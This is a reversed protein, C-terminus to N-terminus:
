STSGNAPAVAHSSPIPEGDSYEVYVMSWGALSRARAMCPLQGAPKWSTSDLSTTSIAPSLGSTEPKAGYEAKGTVFGRTSSCCRFRDPCFNITM